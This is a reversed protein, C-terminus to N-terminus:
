RVDTNTELSDTFAELDYERVRIGGAKDAYLRFFAGDNAFERWVTGFVNVCDRSHSTCFVQVALRAAMTFVVRWVAEQVTWHLGNEFEDVLLVGDKANVLALMIHFVRSVGDGLQKLSVRADVGQLRVFAGRGGQGAAEAFALDLIRPEVLQLGSIVVRELDSLNVADWLQAVKANSLGQAAVWQIRGVMKSRRQGYVPKRFGLRESFLLRRDGEAEAVIFIEAEVGQQQVDQYATIEQRENLFGESEGVTYAATKIQLGPTSSNEALTFGAQQPWPICHTKFFHRFPNLAFPRTDEKDWPEQRAQVLEAFVEVDARAVYIGVAELFASKGVNNRGVLLNVRALRSIALRDFLRFNEIYFTPLWVGVSAKSYKLARVREATQKIGQSIDTFAEDQNAWTTVPKFNKPLGQFRLFDVGDTDCPRLSVPVVVASGEQHRQMARRIEVDFCYDSALFDASVLLLIIDAAELNDDIADKRETGVDIQRDHWADIVKQRELLRLHTVLQDRLAEDKHSYSFFLKVTQRDAM